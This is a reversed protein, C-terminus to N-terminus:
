NVAPHRGANAIARLMHDRELTHLPSVPMVRSLEIMLHHLYDFMSSTAPLTHTCTIHQRAHMVSGVSYIGFRRRTLNPLYLVGCGSCCYGLEFNQFSAHCAFWDMACIGCIRLSSLPAVFIIEVHSIGGGM